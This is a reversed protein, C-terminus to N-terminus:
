RIRKLRFMETKATNHDLMVYVMASGKMMGDESTVRVSNKDVSYTVKEIIGMTETEGPRFIIKMPVIGSAQWEGELPGPSRGCGAFFILAISLSLLKKM